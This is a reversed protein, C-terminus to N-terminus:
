EEKSSIVRFKANIQSITEKITTEILHNPIDEKSTIYLNITLSVNLNEVLLPNIIGKVFENLHGANLETIELNLLKPIKKDQKQDRVSESESPSFARNLILGKGISKLKFDGGFKKIYGKETDYISFIGRSIGEIISLEFIEISKVKVLEVNLYFLEVLDLIRMGKEPLLDLLINPDIKDTIVDRRMLENLYWKTLKEETSNAAQLYLIQSGDYVISYIKKVYHIILPFLKDLRREIVDKYNVSNSDAKLRKLALNTLLLDKLRDLHLEDAYIYIIANKYIRFGEGKKELWEKRAEIKFIPDMIVIRLEMEDPIEKNDKPWVITKVENGLSLMIQKRFEEDIFRVCEIKIDHILGNINQKKRFLYRGFNHHLFHLSDALIEVIDQIFLSGSTDRLMAIKLEPLSIGRNVNAKSFSSLYIVQAIKRASQLLNQNKIANLHSTPNLIESNLITDYESSLHKTFENRLNSSDLSIDSLLIYDIEMNSNWLNTLILALIRLIGRTGQFSHLTTWNKTLLNIIEPQFPYSVDMLKKYDAFNSMSPIEKQIDNHIKFYHSIIWTKARHDVVKKVLRKSVIGYIEDPRIPIEISELRGLIQNLKAITSEQQDNFEEQQQVPTTLVLLTHPISYLTETLEQLFILSQSGLNSKNIEVGYTKSLYNVIEDLLIICPGIGQFLSLIKGKGPSIGRSDNEKIIDFKNTGGLQQAIEGWLTRITEDPTKRGKLPDLYSGSIAILKINPITEIFPLLNRSDNGITAYHYIALLSHTKGGGFPSQLKIIPPGIDKLIKLHVARLLNKLGNTMYTYSFFLKADKYDEISRNEIVDILDAVFLTENIIGEKIKPHPEIVDRFSKM